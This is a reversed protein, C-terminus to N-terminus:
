KSRRPAPVEVREKSNEIITMPATRADALALPSPAILGPETERPSQTVNGVIARGGDQVSVHQVTVKQEGGTRYRKLALMHGAFTGALKTFGRMASDQQELSQTHQLQRAFKMTALHVAAMQAALMAEIQDKPEIGKVVSLMFNLADEDLERGESGARALQTLLGDIFDVDGAGVAEMLLAYGAGGDPHDALIMPLNTENSIKVRPATKAATREFHKRLTSGEQPTPQYKSVEGDSVPPKKGKMETGNRMDARARFLFSKSWLVNSWTGDCRGDSTPLSGVKCPTTKILIFNM